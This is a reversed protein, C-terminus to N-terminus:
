SEITVCCDRGSSKAQYLAKDARNIADDSSKDNIRDYLTVGISVRISLENQEDIQVHMEYCGKRIKEAVVKAGEIDTAPLIVLFEEGGLRIIHDTPRTLELMKAALIKLAKDGIDHGHDDNIKKFHDVDVVFLTTIDKQRQTGKNLKKEIDKLFRRNYLNTLPDISALRHLKNQAEKRLKIEKKLKRNMYIYYILALITPLAIHFFLMRYKSNVQAKTSKYSDNNQSADINDLVNVKEIIDICGFSNRQDYFINDISFATLNSIFLISFIFVKM